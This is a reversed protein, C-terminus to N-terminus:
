PLFEPVASNSTLPVLGVALVGGAGGHLKYCLNQAARVNLCVFPRGVTDSPRIYRTVAAAALKM